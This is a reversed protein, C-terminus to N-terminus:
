KKNKVYSIQIKIKFEKLIKILFENFIFIENLTNKKLISIDKERTSENILKFLANSIM